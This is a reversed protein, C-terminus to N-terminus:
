NMYMVDDIVARTTREILLSSGQDPKIGIAFTVDPGLLTPLQSINVAIRMKENSDLFADGNGKGVETVTWAIDDIRQYKDIYSVVTTHVQGTEDSLDGDNNSDVTTTLNISRGGLATSVTFVMQDVIDDGSTSNTPVGTDLLLVGGDVKMTGQVADLGAHIALKGKEGSFLGATLVTYSFVSAVVIFSVMIIATELGTIGRQDGGSRKLWRIVAIAM